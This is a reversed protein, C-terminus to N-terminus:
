NSSGSLCNQLEILVYPVNNGKIRCTLQAGEYEDYLQRVSTGLLLRRNESVPAIFDEGSKRADSDDRLAVGAVKKSSLSSM